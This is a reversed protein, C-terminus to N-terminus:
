HVGGLSWPCFEAEGTDQAESKSQRGSAVALAEALLETAVDELSAGRLIKGADLDM